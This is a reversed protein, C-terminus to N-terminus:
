KVLLCDVTIKKIWTDNNAGDLATM